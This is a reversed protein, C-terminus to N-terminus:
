RSSELSFTKLFIISDCQCHKAQVNKMIHNWLTRLNIRLAAMHGLFIHVSCQLFSGLTVAKKSIWKYRFDLFLSLETLRTYFTKNFTSNMQKLRHLNALNRGNKFACTLKGEFKADIKQAMLYLEETSKKAWVNYVKTM